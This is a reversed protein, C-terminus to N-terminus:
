RDAESLYEELHILCEPLNKRGLGLRFNKTGFDFYNGPLLLVGKKEVLDICFDEIPQELKLSPFATSGAKPAQWNFVSQYREFFPNLLALNSLIIDLNRQALSEHHRLALTALFESPASNCITTYDKFGAMQEYIARDRTAVWGIRLGPLGYTKSMVGLSVAKEYLDCAAPLRDAPNYELGRYVEDSFLWLNHARAIEVIQGLKTQSMLYGTPNHPCNVVIAKTTPRINRELWDLDLEWHDQESTEWRSVECGSSRAIEQLSQYGPFHVIIHDGPELAVNMFNFIAEEAGAHVLVQGPEIQQYLRNIAQRLEPSGQSETYGLWQSHFAETAGPELELLAQITLTECDSACLLYPANFEYKAFFRELKFAPIKMSANYQIVTNFVVHCTPM